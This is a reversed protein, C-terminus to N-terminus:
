SGLVERRLLDLATITALIRIGARDGPFTRMTEHDGLDSAIGFWVLGIPKEATGSSPGAIGTVSVAVDAGFRHRAGAAMQAATERSVAGYTRLTETGVGLLDIKASNAYSVIGGCFVDSSGPVDTLAASIMGGTCSEALAIHRGRERYATLVAEPLSSEDRAYVCDGLRAAVQDAALRLADEGAGADFLIIRVDGPRALVTLDVGPTDTLAESAKVQADSETVGVCGLELHLARGQGPAMERAVCELM